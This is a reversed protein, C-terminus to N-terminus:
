FPIDNDDMRESMTIINNSQHTTKDNTISYYDSMYDSIWSGVEFRLSSVGLSGHRNKRCIDEGVNKLNPMNLLQDADLYYEDRYLFRVVDADREIGGSYLLDSIIPRKNMRKECERSLQSLWVFCSNLSKAIRKTNKTINAIELDKTAAKYETNAIQLYDALILGNEFNNKRLHRHMEEISYINDEITIDLSKIFDLCNCVDKFERDNLEGKDIKRSDIKILYQVFRNILREKSMELSFIMVPSKNFATCIAHILMMATKGMAPRAAIVHFETKTLPCLEDIQLFGSEFSLKEKNNMREQIIKKQKETLKNVKNNTKEEQTEIQEIFSKNKSIAAKVTKQTLTERIDQLASSFTIRQWNEFILNSKEKVTDINPLYEREALKMLILPVSNDILLERFESKVKESTFNDNVVINLKDNIKVNLLYADFILDNEIITKIEEFVIKYFSDQFTTSKITVEKILYPELVLDSILSKELQIINEYNM